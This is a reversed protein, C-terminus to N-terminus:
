NFFCDFKRLQQQIYVSTQVSWISFFQNIKLTDFNQITKDSVTMWKSVFGVHLLQFLSVSLLLSTLTKEERVFLKYHILCNFYSLRLRSVSFPNYLNTMQVKIGGLTQQFLGTAISLPIRRWFSLEQIM